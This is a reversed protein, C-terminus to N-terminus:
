HSALSTQLLERRGTIIHLVDLFLCFALVMPPFFFGLWVNCPGPLTKPAASCQEHLRKIRNCGWGFGEVWISGFRLPRFEVHLELGEGSVSDTPLSLTRLQSQDTNFCFAKHDGRTECRCTSLVLGPCAVPARVPAMTHGHGVPM